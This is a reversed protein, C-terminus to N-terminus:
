RNEELAKRQREAAEDALRDVAKAKDLAKKQEKLIHDSNDTQKEGPSCAGLTLACFALSVFFIRCM